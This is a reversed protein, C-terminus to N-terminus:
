AGYRIAAPPVVRIEAEEHNGKLQIKDRWQFPGAEMRGMSSIRFYLLIAKKVWGNVTWEGDATVPPTAVRLKGQNLCSITAVIAAKVEDRALRDPNEWAANIYSVWLESM